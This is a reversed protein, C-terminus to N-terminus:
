CPPCRLVISGGAAVQMVALADSATITGSDNVDCLCLLCTDTGISARLVFLADSATVIASVGAGSEGAQVPDGCAGVDPTTTTTTMTTTTTSDPTAVIRFIEGGLDLIYLNGSDDEAFSSIQNIDLSGGPALEVTRDILDTFNSGDFGGPESGDYVLSWIRESSYDAFFYQGRIEAVPGRYVYGGTVSFGQFPGAGRTYDYIPDIAGAPRSGGVGPTAITGERLRWGYNEGGASGAPQVDIEERAGQGVDGIYLDGTMRDFSARWPNRLGYSWIEDDGTADVFPNSPPIAYNRADDAPFADGDVDIRLVKGLPNDTIDQANGSGQTHGSSSDNAGGGDGASIYLYGDPGFGLWGGNHNSQPQAYGLVLQESQPDAVDPDTSVRYRRIETRGDEVTLNVFL